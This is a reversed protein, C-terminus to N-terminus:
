AQRRDAAACRRIEGEGRRHDADGSRRLHRGGTIGIAVFLFLKAVLLIERHGLREGVLIGREIVEVVLEVVVELLFLVVGVPVMRVFAIAM